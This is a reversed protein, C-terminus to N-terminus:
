RDYRRLFYDAILMLVPIAVFLIFLIPITM